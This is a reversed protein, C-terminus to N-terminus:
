KSEITQPPLGPTTLVTALRKGNATSQAAIDRVHDMYSSYSSKRSSSACSNILVAFLLVVGVVVAVVGLLRLLPTSGRPPGFSTGGAGDDAAAATAAAATTRRPMRVRSQTESTAADDEFFNFEIEDDRQDM